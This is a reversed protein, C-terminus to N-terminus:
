QLREWEIFTFKPEYKVGPTGDENIIEWVNYQRYKKLDELYKTWREDTAHAPRHEQENLKM